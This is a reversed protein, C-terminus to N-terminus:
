PLVGTILPRFPKGAQVQTAFLRLNPLTGTPIGSAEIRISASTKVLNTIYVVQSQFWLGSTQIIASCAALGARGFIVVAILTCHELAQRLLLFHNTGLFSDVLNSGLKPYLAGPRGIIEM